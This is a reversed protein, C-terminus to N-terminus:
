AITHNVGIFVVVLSGFLGEKMMIGVLFEMDVTVNAVIIDGVIVIRVMVIGFMIGIILRGVIVVSGLILSLEEFNFIVCSAIGLFIKM